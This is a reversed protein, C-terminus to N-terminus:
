SPEIPGIDTAPDIGGHAAHWALWDRATHVIQNGDADLYVDTADGRLTVTMGDLADAAAEPHCGLQGAVVDVALRLLLSREDDTLPRNIPTSM